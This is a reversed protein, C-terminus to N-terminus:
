RVIVKRDGRIYIGKKLPREIRNGQLDFWRDLGDSAESNIFEIGTDDTSSRTVTYVRVQGKQKKARHLSNLRASSVKGGNYVYVWAPETCNYLVSVKRRDTHHFAIPALKGVKVMMQYEGDTQSDIIVYGTGAPVKFTLGTFENAYDDTGPETGKYIMRNIENESMPHNLVVCHETEDYGDNESPDGSIDLTFLIDYIVTNNLKVEVPNGEDDTTIFDEDKWVITVDEDIPEIDRQLVTLIYYDRAGEYNDDGAFEAYINVKGPAVLTVEGTQADVTAVDPDSSWYSLTLGAPEVTVYPPAFPEGIKATFEYNVYQVKAIGKNITVTAMGTVTTFGTKTVQYYVTYSGINTYSPSVNLNYTGQTTGYKVTAGAPASVTIGHAQGDYTGTYGTATVTMSASEVTVTYSASKSAYTYNTGDTVTATISASGSGVITVEGTSANVTAVSANSTSYNVTGDGSKTLANTFAADGYSKTVSSTVYSISGAAKSITVTRSDTVTTSGTKTVQYYITYTGADTYTPSVDLNCAEASTGYKVTAGEPATVTIGHAQGDYTGKYGSATVGMTASKVTLIYSDETNAYNYYDGDEVTATITTSGSGVITVEGTTADVIAVATNSSTYTVTGNGTNTLENIFADDGYTKEVSTIEYSISAAAEVITFTTSATGTYNGIGTATITATGIDTNDSYELTYDIGEVLTTEYGSDTLILTLAPEPTVEDGTYPQDPIDSFTVGSLDKETITFYATASGDYNGTGKVTVTATGADTADDIWVTYDSPNVPINGKEGPIEVSVSPSHADGTYEFSTPSLTVVADNLSRPTITLTKQVASGKLRGTTLPTVTVTYSGVEKINSDYDVTYDYDKNFSFSGSKVQVFPTHTYGDYPISEPSISVTCNSISKQTVNLTFLGLDYRIVQNSMDADNLVFSESINTIYAGFIDNGIESITVVGTSPNITNVAAAATSRSAYKVSTGSPLAPAIEPAAITPRYEINLYNNVFGYYKAVATGSEQGHWIARLTLTAPRRDMEIGTKLGYGQVNETYTEDTVNGMGDEYVISYTVYDADGSVEVIVNLKNPDGGLNYINTFTAGCVM